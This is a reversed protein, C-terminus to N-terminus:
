RKSITVIGPSRQDFRLDGFRGTAAAFQSARAQIREATFEGDSSKHQEYRRDSDSLRRKVRRALIRIRAGARSLPTGAGGDAAAIDKLVAVIRACALPGDIASVNDSLLARRAPDDVIADGDQDAIQRARRAVDSIATYGESLGNPLHFDLAADEVPKYALVPKGLVAAEVASTCGNHILCSAALLWQAVPGEYIVAVNPLGQAVRQWAEKSESPHPRVILQHPAIAAALEPVAAQFAAFLKRKHEDVERKFALFADSDYSSRGVKPKRGEPKFHNVFSFNTNVLVFRGHRARLAAVAPAHLSRLEPRLLDFRPNGADVIPVGHYFRHSRWVASNSPGWSFLVSPISFAQPEIRSKHIDDRFRVLGEEDWAAIRHGLQSMLRVQKAFRVSKAIYISSPFGAEAIRNMGGVHSRFGAEAAFLALLLKGDLERSVTEVPLLVDHLM